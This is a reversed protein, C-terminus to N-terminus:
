GCCGCGASPTSLPHIFIFNEGTGAPVTGRLIKYQVLVINILITTAPKSFFVGCSLRRNSGALSLSPTEKCLVTYYVNDSSPLLSKTEGITSAESPLTQLCEM